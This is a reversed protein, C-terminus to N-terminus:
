LPDESIGEASAELVGVLELSWPYSSLLTIAESFRARSIWEHKLTGRRISEAIENCVSLAFDHGRADLILAVTGLHTNKLRIQDLENTFCEYALGRIMQNPWRSDSDKLKSLFSSCSGANGEAAQLINRGLETLQGSLLEEAQGHGNAILFKVAANQTPWTHSKLAAIIRQFCTKTSLGSAKLKKVDLTEIHSRLREAQRGSLVGLTYLPEFVKLLTFRGAHSLEVLKGVLSDQALHGLASFVNPDSCIRFLTLPYKTVKGHWQDPTLVAVGKQHIVERTFWVGRKFFALLSPDSAIRELDSWYKDLMWPIVSEDIRPLIDKAFLRVAEQQDDLYSMDNTLSELLSKIFGHKLRVPNALLQGVVVAAAHVVQEATPASEYPHGYLCRMEYVHALLPYAVDSLFGYEKAQKLLFGDVSKQDREMQEFKGVVKGAAGDRKQAERFRRKLSEACALWIMVYAARLCGAAACLSAEELLPRDEPAMARSVYSSLDTM